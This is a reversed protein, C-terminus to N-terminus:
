QTAQDLRWVLAAILGVVFIFGLADLLTEFYLYRRAPCSECGLPRVHGLGHSWVTTASCSRRPLRLLDGVHPWGRPRQAVRRQLLAIALFARGSAGAVGGPGASSLRSWVATRLRRRLGFAFAVAFPAFLLYLVSKLDRRFSASRKACSARVSPRRLRFLLQPRGRGIPRALPGRHPTLDRENRRRRRRSPASAKWTRPSRIAENDMFARPNFNQHAMVGWIKRRQMGMNGADYIPFCLVDRMYKDFPHSRRDYSNVGMVRMCDYVIQTGVEGAISRRWRM